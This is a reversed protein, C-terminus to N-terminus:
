ARHSGGFGGNREFSQQFLEGIIVSEGISLQNLAGIAYCLLGVAFLFTVRTLGIDIM